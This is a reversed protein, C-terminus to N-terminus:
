HEYLYGVTAGYAMMTLLAGFASLATGPFLGAGLIPMLIVQVVGWIGVAFLAGKKWSHSPLKKKFISGYFHAVLVAAVLFAFWGLDAGFRSTFLAQYDTQPIRIMRAVYNFATMVVSGMIGAILAKKITTMNM